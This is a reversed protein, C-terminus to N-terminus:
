RRETIAYGYSRNDCIVYKWQGEEVFEDIAQKVGAQNADHFVIYKRTKPAHLKLEARVHKYTHMSDVMLMDVETVPIKADVSSNNNYVLRGNFEEFLHKHPAITDFNIDVMEVLELAPNGLIAAAASVGSLVGLEKYSNCEKILKSLHDYYLVFDPGYQETFCQRAHNYFEALTTCQSFNPTLM